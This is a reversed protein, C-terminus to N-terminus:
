NHLCSLLGFGRELQCNLFYTFELELGRKDAVEIKSNSELIAIFLPFNLRSSNSPLTSHCIYCSCM